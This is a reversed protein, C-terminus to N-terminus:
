RAPRSASPNSGRADMQRLVRELDDERVPRALLFGGSSELSGALEADYGDSVLVFSAVHGRIKEQYDSAGSVSPRV